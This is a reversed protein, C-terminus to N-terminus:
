QEIKNVMNERHILHCTKEVLTLLDGINSAWQNLFESPEKRKRFSIIAQPRDIKAFITKGTVLNAIFTEVETPPLELLQSLRKTTIKSYYEAIVRINHEVVRKRLDNWLPNKGEIKEVFCQHRNLEPQYIEVFQNWRMLEKTLFLNLLQKYSPIELLKADLFIINMLDSSENDHSALCIFAVQLQLLPKWLAENEKIKPTDYMAKYSRCIDLYKSEHNYYRIMLEYFRLKLDQFDKDNLFKKSIKNSLISAKIYDKKELCLRMQELIFETKESRDMQGFTEVQIEQLIDAAEGIKGEDERIKALIRTLRAREIEVYMKGETITRLAELLEM